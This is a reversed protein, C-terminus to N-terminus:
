VDHSELRLFEVKTAVPPRIISLENWVDEANGEREYWWTPELATIRYQWGIM